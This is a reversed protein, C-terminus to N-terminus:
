IKMWHKNYSIKKYNQLKDELFMKGARHLSIENKERKRKSVKLKIWYCSNWVDLLWSYIEKHEWLKRKIPKKTEIKKAQKSITKLINKTKKTREFSKSHEKQLKFLYKTLKIKKIM